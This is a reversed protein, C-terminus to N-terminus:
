FQWLKVHFRLIVFHFNCILRGQVTHLNIRGYKQKSCYKEVSRKISIVDPLLLLPMMIRSMREYYVSSLLRLHLEWAASHKKLEFYLRRLASFWCYVISWFREFHSTLALSQQFKIIKCGSKNWTFDFKLSNLSDLFTM